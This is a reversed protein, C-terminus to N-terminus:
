KVSHLRIRVKGEAINCISKIYKCWLTDMYYVCSMNYKIVTYCLGEVFTTTIVTFFCCRTQYALSIIM